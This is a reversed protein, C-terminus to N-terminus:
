PNKRMLGVLYQALARPTPCDFMIEPQLQRGLSFELEGILTIAQLSDVGLASFSCEPSIESGPGRHLRQLRWVIFQEIAAPDDPLAPLPTNLPITM